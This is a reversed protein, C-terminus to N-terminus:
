KCADAFRAADFRPNDERFLKTLSEQLIDATPRANKRPKGGVTLVSVFGEKRVDSVIKAAAIYDKKTM